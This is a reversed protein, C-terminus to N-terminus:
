AAAAATPLTLEDSDPEEVQVTQRQVYKQILPLDVRKGAAFDLAVSVAEDVAASEGAADAKVLLRLVSEWLRSNSDTKKKAFFSVVHFARTINLGALTKRLNDVSDASEAFRSALKAGFAVAQGCAARAKKAEKDEAALLGPVAEVTCGLIAAVGARILLGAEAKSWDPTHAVVNAAFLYADFSASAGHRMARAFLASSDLTQHTSMPNAEDTPRNLNSDPFHALIARNAPRTAPTTGPHAASTARGLGALPFTPLTMTQAHMM